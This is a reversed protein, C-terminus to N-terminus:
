SKAWLYHPCWSHSPPTSAGWLTLAHTPPTKTLPSSLHSMQCHCQWHTMSHHCHSMLWSVALSDNHSYPTITWSTWTAPAEPIIAHRYQNPHARTSRASTVCWAYFHPNATHACSPRRMLTLQARTGVPASPRGWLAPSLSPPGPPRPSLSPLHELGELLRFTLFDFQLASLLLQIQASAAEAALGHEFRPRPTSDSSDSTSSSVM